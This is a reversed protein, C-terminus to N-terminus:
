SETQRFLKGNHTTWVTEKVHCAKRLIASLSFDNINPMNTNGAKTSIFCHNQMLLFNPLFAKLKRGRRSEARGRYLREGSCGFSVAKPFVSSIEAASLRNKINIDPALLLDASEDICEDAIIEGETKAIEEDCTNAVVSLYPMATAPVAKSKGSDKRCTRLGDSMTFPQLKGDFTELNILYKKRM